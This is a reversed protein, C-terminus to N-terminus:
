DPRRPKVVNSGYKKELSRWELYERLRLFVAVVLTIAIAGCLVLFGIWNFTGLWDTHFTELGRGERVMHVARFLLAVFGLFSAIGALAMGIQLWRPLTRRPASKKETITM